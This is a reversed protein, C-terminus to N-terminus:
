LEPQANEWESDAPDIPSTPVKRMLLWGRDNTASLSIASARHPCAL